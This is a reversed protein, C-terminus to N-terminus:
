FSVFLFSIFFESHECFFFYLMEWFFVFGRGSERENLCPLTLLVKGFLELLLACLNTYLMSKVM